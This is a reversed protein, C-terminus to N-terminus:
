YGTKALRTRKGRILAGVRQRHATVHHGASVDVKPALWARVDEESGPKCLNSFNANNLCVSLMM